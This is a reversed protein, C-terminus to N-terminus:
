ACFRFQKIPVFNVDLFKSTPIKCKDRFKLSRFKFNFKFEPLNIYWHLKIGIINRIKNSSNRESLDYWKILPKRTFKMKGLISQTRTSINCTEWLIRMNIGVNFYIHLKMGIIIWRELNFLNFSILNGSKNKYNKLTFWM